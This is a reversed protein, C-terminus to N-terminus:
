SEAVSTPYSLDHQQSLMHPPSVIVQSVITTFILDSSVVLVTMKPLVASWLLSLLENQKRQATDASKLDGEQKKKVAQSQRRERTPQDDPPGLSSFDSVEM